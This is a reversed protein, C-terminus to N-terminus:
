AYPLHYYEFQYQLQLITSQTNSEDPEPCYGTAPEHLCQTNIWPEMFHPCNM